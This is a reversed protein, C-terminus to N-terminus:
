TDQTLQSNQKCFRALAFTDMRQQDNKTENRIWEGRERERLRDLVRRAQLAATLQERADSASSHAQDSNGAAQTVHHDLQELVYGINRLEGITASGSHAAALQAAGARRIESLTEHAARAAAARDEAGALAVAAHQEHM